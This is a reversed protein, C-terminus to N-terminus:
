ITFTRIDLFSIRKRKDPYTTILKKYGILSQNAILFKKGYTTPNIFIITDITASGFANFLFPQAEYFFWSTFGTQHLRMRPLILTLRQHNNHVTIRKRQYEMTITQPVATLWKLTCCCLAITGLFWLIKYELRITKTSYYVIIGSIFISLLALLGPYAFGILWNTSGTQLIKFWNEVFLNLLSCLFNNPIQFLETCLLL